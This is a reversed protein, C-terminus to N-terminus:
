QELGGSVGSVHKVIEIDTWNDRAPYKRGRDGVRDMTSGAKAAQTSASGAANTDPQRVLAEPIEPEKLAKLLRV